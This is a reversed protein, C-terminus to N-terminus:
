EIFEDVFGYHFLCVVAVNQVIYSHYRTNLMFGNQLVFLAMNYNLIHLIIMLIVVDFDPYYSLMIRVFVPM